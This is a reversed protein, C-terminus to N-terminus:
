QITLKKFSSNAGYWVGVANGVINGSFNSSYNLFSLALGQQSVASWLTYSTASVNSVKITIEDGKAYYRSANTSDLISRTRLLSVTFQKGAQDIAKIGRPTTSYFDHQTNLKTFLLYNAEPNVNDISVTPQAKEPDLWEYSVDKIAPTYLPVETESLFIDNNYKVELKYQQGAKGKLSSGVYFLYPFVNDNRTLTLYEEEGGGSVKVSAWRVILAELQEENIIYNTPINHMVKVVPVAGNEIVGEVVFKPEFKKHAAEKICASFTISIIITVILKKM